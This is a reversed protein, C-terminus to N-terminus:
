DWVSHVFFQQNLAETLVKAAAKARAEQFSLVMEAKSYKEGFLQRQEPLIREIADITYFHVHSTALNLEVLAQTIETKSDYTIVYAFGCVDLVFGDKNRPVKEMFDIMAKVSAERADEIAKKVTDLITSTPQSRVLTSIAFSSALLDEIRNAMRNRKTEVAEIVKDLMIVFTKSIVSKDFPNGFLNRGADEFLMITEAISKAEEENWVIIGVKSFYGGAKKDLFLPLAPQLESGESKSPVWLKQVDLKENAKWRWEREHTWDLSYPTRNPNFAVYRYQERQPLISEDIIRRLKTDETLTDEDSLGYIVPRGGAEYLERKLICIGYSSCRKLDNRAQSYKAFNYIPMETFCVAPQGGYITTKGNRFSYGPRLGGIELIYKLITFADADIELDYLFSEYVNVVQLPYDIKPDRERVFHITWETMDTRNEILKM